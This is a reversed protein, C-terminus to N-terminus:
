NGLWESRAWILLEQNGPFSQRRDWEEGQGGPVHRSLRSWFTFQDIFWVESLRDAMRM